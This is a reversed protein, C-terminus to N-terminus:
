QQDKATNLLLRLDTAPTLEDEALQGAVQFSIRTTMESRLLDVNVVNIGVYLYDTGAPPIELTSSRRGAETFSSWLSFLYAAAIVVIILIGRRRSWRDSRAIPPEHRTAIPPTRAEGM